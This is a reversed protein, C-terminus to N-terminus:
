FTSTQLLPLIKVFVGCEIEHTLPMKLPTMSEETKFKKLNYTDVLGM